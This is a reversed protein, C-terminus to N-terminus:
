CFALRLPIPVLLQHASSTACQLVAFCLTMATLNLNQATNSAGFAM